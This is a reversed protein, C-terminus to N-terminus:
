DFGYGPSLFGFGFSGEDIDFSIDKNQFLPDFELIHILKCSLFYANHLLTTNWHFLVKNVKKDCIM